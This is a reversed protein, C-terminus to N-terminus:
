WGLTKRILRKTKPFRSLTDNVRDAIEYRFPKHSESRLKVNEGSKIWRFVVITQSGHESDSLLEINGMSLIQHVEKVIELEGRSPAV